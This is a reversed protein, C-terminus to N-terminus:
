AANKLRPIDCVTPDHEGIPLTEPCGCPQVIILGKLNGRKLGGFAKHAGEANFDPHKEIGAYLAKASAKDAGISKRYRAECEQYAQEAKKANGESLFKHLDSGPMALTDKYPIGVKSSGVQKATM